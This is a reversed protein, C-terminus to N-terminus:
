ENDDNDDNDDENDDDDNCIDTRCNGIRQIVMLLRSNTQVINAIAIPQAPAM